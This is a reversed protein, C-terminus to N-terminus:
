RTQSLWRKRMSACGNMAMAAATRDNTQKARAATNWSAPTTPYVNWSFKGAMENTKPAM